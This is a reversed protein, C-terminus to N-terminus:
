KEKFWKYYNKQEGNEKPWDAHIVVVPLGLKIRHWLYLLRGTRGNGDAFPHIEEFRVHCKKTVIEKYENDSNELDDDVTINVLECFDKIEEKLLSESIFIKREGGIYVDCDRIKGAIKPAINKCLIEHIFLIDSVNIIDLKSLYIWAKLADELAQTSYEQEIKNSEEIFNKIERKEKASYKKNEKIIKNEM